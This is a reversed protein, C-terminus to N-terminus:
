PHQMPFEELKYHTVLWRGGQLQLKISVPQAFNQYPIEGKRDKGRGVAMFKASATPPSTLRNVDIQVDNIHGDEIEFSQFVWRSLTRPEKASPSICDLLSDLDHRNVAAVAKDLTQEVEERPTVVLREVVLGGVVLLGVGIMAWLLRGRGSQFLLMGLVAEVAIGLFLIPWPSELFIAM